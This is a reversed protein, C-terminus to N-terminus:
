QPNLSHWGAMPGTVRAATGTLGGLVSLVKDATQWNEDKKLMRVIIEMRRMELESGKYGRRRLSLEARAIESEHSQLTQAIQARVSRDFRGVLNYENIDSLGKAKSSMAEGKLKTIMMDTWSYTKDDEEDYLTSEKLDADANASRAQAAILDAQAQTMAAQSRSVRAETMPSAGEASRMPIPAQAAAADGAALVPNLGSAELDAMRRQVATDEREWSRHTLGLNFANTAATSGLASLVGELIASWAM